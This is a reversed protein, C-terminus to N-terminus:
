NIAELSVAHLFLFIPPGVSPAKEIATGVILVLGLVLAKRIDEM